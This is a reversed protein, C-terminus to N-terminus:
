YLLFNIIYFFNTSSVISKFYVAKERGFFTFANGAKYILIDITDVVAKTIIVFYLFGLFDM